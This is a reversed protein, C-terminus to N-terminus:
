GMLEDLSKGAALADKLWKPKPGMGSWSNGAGDQYKAQPAARKAAAKKAGIKKAATKKAAAKKAPAEAAEGFPGPQIAEAALADTGASGIAFDELKAGAALADSLWTPRKGRGVWANGKGDVYKAERSPPGKRKSAKATRAGKAGFLDQVTIGYAQIAAKAQSIVAAIESRKLEEAQAQLTAIQQQLNSYTQTM